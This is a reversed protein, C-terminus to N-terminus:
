QIDIERDNSQPEGPTSRGSAVYGELIGLLRTCTAPHKAAVNNTEGWMAPSTM